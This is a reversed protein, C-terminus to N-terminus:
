QAYGKKILYSRNNVKDGGKLGQPTYNVNCKKNGYFAYIQEKPVGWKANYGFVDIHEYFDDLTRSDDDMMKELVKLCAVTDDYARHSNVVIDNLKYTDIANTLKHPYAFNEKYMTMIDFWHLNKVDSLDVFNQIFGADFQTNYALILVPKKSNAILNKFENQVDLRDKGDNVLMENTIHTLNTIEETLLEGNKLKILSNICEKINGDDEITAVGLDIIKCQCCDLGTTETDLCLLTFEKALTLLKQNTIKM